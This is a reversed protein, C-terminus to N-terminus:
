VRNLNPNAPLKLNLMTKNLWVPADVVLYGGSFSSSPELAAHLMEQTTNTAIIDVPWEILQRAQNRFSRTARKHYELEITIPKTGGPQPKNFLTITYPKESQMKCLNNSKLRVSIQLQDSFRSSFKKWWFTDCLTCFFYKNLKNIKNLRCKAVFM